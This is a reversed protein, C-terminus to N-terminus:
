QLYPACDDHAIGLDKSMLCSVLRFEEELAASLLYPQKTKLDKICAERADSRASKVKTHFQELRLFIEENEIFPARMISALSDNSVAISALAECDKTTNVYEAYAATIDSYITHKFTREYLDEVQWYASLSVLVAM